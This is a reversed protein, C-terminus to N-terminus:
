LEFHFTRTLYRWCRQGLSQPAASIKARGRQGIKFERMGAPLPVKVQYTASLPRAMGSSPDTQTALAGGTQMAMSEPSVPMPKRSIDDESEIVTEFVQDAYADLKIRVPQGAHISNIDAQDVAMM